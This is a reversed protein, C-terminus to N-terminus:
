DRPTYVIVFEFDIWIEQTFICQAFCMSNEGDWAGTRSLFIKFLEAENHHLLAERTM